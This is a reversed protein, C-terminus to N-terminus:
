YKENKESIFRTMNLLGKINTDIVKDWDEFDADFISGKGLALGANNLLKDVPKAKSSVFSQCANRDRIDFSLILVKISYDQELEHKFNEFWENWRGTIINSKHQAFLRASAKGIGSTAGIILTWKNILRNM